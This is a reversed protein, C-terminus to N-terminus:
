CSYMHLELAGRGKCVDSRKNRCGQIKQESVSPEPCKGDKCSFGSFLKVLAPEGAESDDGLALYERINVAYYKDSALM